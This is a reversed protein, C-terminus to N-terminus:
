ARFCQPHPAWTPATTRPPSATPQHLNIEFSGRRFDSQVNVRVEAGTGNLLENAVSFLDGIAMLAPALDRVDM